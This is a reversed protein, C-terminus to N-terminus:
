RTAEMLTRIVSMLVEPAKCGFGYAGRIQRIIEKDSLGHAILEAIIEGADEVPPHAMDPWSWRRYRLRRLLDERESATSETVRMKKEQEVDRVTRWLWNPAIWSLERCLRKVYQGQLIPEYIKEMLFELLRMQVDEPTDAPVQTCYSAGPIDDWLDAGDASAVRRSAYFRLLAQDEPDNPDWEGDWGEGLDIWEIKIDGKILETM